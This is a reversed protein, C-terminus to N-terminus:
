KIFAAAIYCVGFFRVGFYFAVAKPDKWIEDLTEPFKTDILKDLTWLIGFVASVAGFFKALDVMMSVLVVEGM